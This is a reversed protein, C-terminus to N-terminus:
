LRIIYRRLPAQPCEKDAVKKLEPNYCAADGFLCDNAYTSWDSGCVPKYVMPCIRAPKCYPNIILKGCAGKYAVTLDNIFCAWRSLLCLNAYTRGDSGCVPNFVQHCALVTTICLPNAPGKDCEGAHIMGAIEKSCAARQFECENGYTVGDSGCVPAYEQPCSVSQQCQPSASQEGQSIPLIESTTGFRALMAVALFVASLTM